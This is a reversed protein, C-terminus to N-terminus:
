LFIAWIVVAGRGNAVNTIRCSPTSRLERSEAPSDSTLEIKVGAVAVDASLVGAVFDVNVVDTLCVADFVWLVLVGDELCVVEAADDVVAVDFLENILEAVADGECSLGTELEVTEAADDVVAGFGDDCESELSGIIRPTTRPIMMRAKSATTRRKKWRWRRCLCPLLRKERCLRVVVGGDSPSDSIM